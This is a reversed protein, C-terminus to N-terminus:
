FRETFLLGTTGLPAVSITRGSDNEVTLVAIQFAAASVFFAASTALAVNAIRTSRADREQLEALMACRAAAGPNSCTAMGPASPFQEVLDLRTQDADDRAAHDHVGTDRPQLLERRLRNRREAHV